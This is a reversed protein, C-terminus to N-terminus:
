WSHSGSMDFQKKVVKCGFVINNHEAVEEPGMWSVWRNFTHPTFVVIYPKHPGHNVLWDLADAGDVYHVVGVSGGLKASIIALVYIDVSKTNISNEFLLHVIWINYWPGSKSVHNLKLGLM